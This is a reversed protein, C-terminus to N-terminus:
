SLTPLVKFSLYIQDDYYGYKHWSSNSTITCFIIVREAIFENTMSIVIKKGDNLVQLGNKLPHWEITYNSQDFSPDVTIEFSFIDRSHFVMMQHTKPNEIIVERQSGGNEFYYENGLSDSAKIITPINFEKEQNTMTFYEKICEIFDNTYCISQEADRISIANAHALKNRIPILRTLFTRVEEVGNPYMNKLYKSFYNEYFDRRCIIYIIDDLLLTDIPRQYRIPNAEMKVSANKILESKLLNRGQSDKFFFYDVGIKESFIKHIFLRSWREFAELHNKSISRLDNESFKYLM